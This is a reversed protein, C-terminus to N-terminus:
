EGAGPGRVVKEAGRVLSGLTYDGLEVTYKGCKTREKPNLLFLLPNGVWVTMAKESWLRQDSLLIGVTLTKTDQETVAEAGGIM